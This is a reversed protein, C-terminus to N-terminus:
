SEQYVPFDLSVTTGHGLVSDITMQGGHAKMLHKVISLGLGTGGLERSRTKDARYFREGLRPIEGKPIGVGTDAIRIKLRGAESKEAALSVTGGDPTFKVANGLINLLIQALRDRDGRIAPLGAPIEKVIQLHKEAAQAAVVALAHDLVDEASLKEFLLNAEGLEIGSLTLLDDVLRNLRQANTQITRLFALAQERDGIAGRQLTEVFGIIATLPTRIEHTVNAVFDTRVRELKKLRTVDHFVLVTKREKAAAGQVASITVDATLPPDEGLVIELSLTEGTKRFAELGDHLSTNRFAEIITRGTVEGAPRRIMAEMGRNLTEIRLDSDLVVVGEAMGAFVSELKQKEEDAVRIKEQLAAVMDNINEALEGIEDRAESRFTGAADGRRVRETFAALKRIPSTVQVSFALAILLSFFVILLLAKFASRRVQDISGSVEQVPRALRVYGEKKAGGGLSVAVYIMETKLTRSYRLAVGTGKLRAEQIETRNLHSDMEADPHGSDALVRGSRDILTVRSRSRDALADAHRVIEAPPMLSIIQAEATMEEEIWGVLGSRLQREILFGAVVTVLIGVGLFAAVMKHSLRVKM